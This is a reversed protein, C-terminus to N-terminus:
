RCNEASTTRLCDRYNNDCDPDRPDDHCVDRRDTPAEIGTVSPPPLAGTTTANNETSGSPTTTNEPAGTSTVPPPLAGTSTVPPPLAGTTTANNETSGSPTTTNNSQEPLSPPNETSNSQASSTHFVLPDFLRTASGFVLSIVVALLLRTVIKRIENM